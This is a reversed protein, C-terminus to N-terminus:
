KKNSRKKTKRTKNTKSTKKPKKSTTKTENNPKTHNINFNLNEPLNEAIVPGISNRLEDYCPFDTQYNETTTEGGQLTSEYSENKNM